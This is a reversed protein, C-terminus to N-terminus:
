AHNFKREIQWWFFKIVSIDRCRTEFRTTLVSDSTTDFALFFM